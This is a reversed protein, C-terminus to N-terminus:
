VPCPSLQRRAARHRIRRRAPQRSGLPSDGSGPTARALTGALRPVDIRIEHAPESKEFLGHRTWGAFGPHVENRSVACAFVPASLHDPASELGLARAPWGGSTRALRLARAARHSFKGAATRSAAAGPPPDCRAVRSLSQDM